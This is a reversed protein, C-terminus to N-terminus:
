GTPVRLFYAIHGPWAVSVALASASADMGLPAATASVAAIQVGVRSKRMRSKVMTGGVGLLGDSFEFM